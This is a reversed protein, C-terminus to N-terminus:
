HAVTSAAPPLRCLAPLLGAHAARRLVPRRMTARPLLAPGRGGCSVFSARLTGGADAAVCVQRTKQVAGGGAARQCGRRAPGGDCGTRGSWRSILAERWDIEAGQTARVCHPIGPKSQSWGPTAWATRRPTPLRRLYPCDGQCRVHWGLSSRISGAPLNDDTCLSTAVHVAILQQRLVRCPDADWVAVWAPLLRLLASLSCILCCAAPNFELTGTDSEHTEPQEFSVRRPWTRHEPAAPHPPTRGAPVLRDDVPEGNNIM